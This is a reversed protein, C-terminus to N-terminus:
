VAACQITATWSTYIYIRIHTNINTHIYMHIYTYIYILVQPLSPNYKISIKHLCAAYIKYPGHMGGNSPLRTYGILSFLVISGVWGEEGIRWGMEISEANM